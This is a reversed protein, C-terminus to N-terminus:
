MSMNKSPHHVNNIIIGHKILRNLSSSFVPLMIPINTPTAKNNAQWSTISKSKIQFSASGTIRTIIPIDSTKLSM